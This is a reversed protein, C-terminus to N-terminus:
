ESIQEVQLKVFSACAFYEDKTNIEKFDKSEPSHGVFCWEDGKTFYTTPTSRQNESWLLWESIFQPKKKLIEIIAEVSIQDHFIHYGTEKLLTVLSKNKSRFDEPIQLLKYIVKEVELTM